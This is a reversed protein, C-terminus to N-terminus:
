HKSTDEVSLFREFYTAKNVFLESTVAHVFYKVPVSDNADKFMSSPAGKLTVKLVICRLLKAKLLKGLFM